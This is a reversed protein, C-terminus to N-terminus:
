SCHSRKNGDMRGEWSSTLAEADNMSEVCPLPAGGIHATRPALVCRLVGSWLEQGGPASMRILSLGSVIVTIITFTM